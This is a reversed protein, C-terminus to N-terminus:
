VGTEALKGGFTRFYGQFLDRASTPTVDLQHGDARVWVFLIKSIAVSTKQGRSELMATERQNQCFNLPSRSSL